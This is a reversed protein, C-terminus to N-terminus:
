LGQRQSGGLVRHVRGRQGRRYSVPRPVWAMEEPHAWSFRMPLPGTVLRKSNAQSWSPDGTVWTSALAAQTWM